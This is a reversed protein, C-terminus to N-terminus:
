DRFKIKLDNEYRCNPCVATRYEIDKLRNYKDYNYTSAYMVITTPCKKCAREIICPFESFRAYDNLHARCDQHMPGSRLPRDPRRQRPQPNAVPPRPRVRNPERRAEPPPSDPRRTKRPPNVDRGGNNKADLYDQYTADKRGTRDRWM